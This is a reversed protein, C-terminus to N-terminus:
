RIRAKQLQAAGRAGLALYAVGPGFGVLTGGAPLQVRDILTGRKDIVDYVAGGDAPVVQNVRIWVHGDADARTFGSVFPPQFDPLDSPDVYARLPGRVVAGEDRNAAVSDSARMSSMIAVKMDDTLRVWQTPMKPGATVHGDPRVLDVRYDRVRVVAVTGDNLVTWDDGSPIPNLAPRGSGGLGPGRKTVAQRLRAAQLSVLTDVRRTIVDERLIAVSDPGRMLTDGVFDPPLLGIFFPAPARFLLHGAQDFGLPPGSPSGPTRGTRGPPPIIRAVKGKSDLILFAGTIQDVILSSDGTFRVLGTLGSGYAKATGSTTDAVVTTHRLTSDLLLLRRTNADNILVRGDGFTRISMVNGITDVSTAVIAGLPRVAMTPQQALVAHGLAGLCPAVVGFLCRYKSAMM